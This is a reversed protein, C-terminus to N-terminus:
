FLYVHGVAVDSELSGSKQIIGHVVAARGEGFLFAGCMVEFAQQRGSDIIQRRLKLANQPM